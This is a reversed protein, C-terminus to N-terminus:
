LNGKPTSKSANKVSSISDHFQTLSDAILRKNFNINEPGVSDEGFSQSKLLFPKIM